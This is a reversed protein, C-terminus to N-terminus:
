KSDSVVKFYVTIIHSNKLYIIINDSTGGVASM